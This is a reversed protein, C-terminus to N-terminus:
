WLLLHCLLSQQQQQTYTHVCHVRLVDEFDKLRRFIGVSAHALRRNNEEDGHPEPRGGEVGLVHCCHLRHERQRLADPDDASFRLM